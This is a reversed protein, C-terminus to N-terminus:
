KQGRLNHFLFKLQKFASKDAQTKFNGMVSTVLCFHLAARLDLLYNSSVVEQGRTPGAFWM